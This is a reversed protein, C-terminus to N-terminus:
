CTSISTISPTNEVTAEDINNLYIQKMLSIQGELVDLERTTQEQDRELRNGGGTFISEDIMTAFKEKTYQQNLLLLVM